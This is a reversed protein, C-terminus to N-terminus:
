KCRLDVNVRFCIVLVFGFSRLRHKQILGLMGGGIALLYLAPPFRMVLNMLELGANLLPLYTLQINMLDVKEDLRQDYGFSLDGYTSWALVIAPVMAVVVILWNHWTIPPDINLTSRVLKPRDKQAIWEGLFWLILIIIQIM